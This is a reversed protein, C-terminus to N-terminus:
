ARGLRWFSHTHNRVLNTPRGATKAPRGKL